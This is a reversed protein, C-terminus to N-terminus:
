QFMSKENRLLFFNYSWEFFRSKSTLIVKKLLAACILFISAVDSCKEIQFVVFLELFFILLFVNIKAVKKLEM